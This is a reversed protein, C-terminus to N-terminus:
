AVAKVNPNETPSSPNKHIVEGSGAQFDFPGLLVDAIQLRLSCSEKVAVRVSDRGLEIGFVIGRHQIDVLEGVNRLVDHEDRSIGDVVQSAGEVVQGASQHSPVATIGFPSVKGDALSRLLVPGLADSLYVADANRIFFSDSREFRVTSSILREECQVPQVNQVLVVDQDGCCASHTLDTIRDTGSGEVLLELSECSEAGAQDSGVSSPDFCLVSENRRLLAVWDKSDGAVMFRIVLNLDGKVYRESFLTDEVRPRKKLDQIAQYLFDAPYNSSEIPRPM